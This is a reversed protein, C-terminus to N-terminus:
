RDGCTGTPPYSYDLNELDLGAMPIPTPSPGQTPDHSPLCAMALICISILDAPLIFCPIWEAWTMRGVPQTM